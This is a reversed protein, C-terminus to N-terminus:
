GSFSLSGVEASWGFRMAGRRSYFAVWLPLLVIPFLATGAALGLLGGAANPRRYCYIAWVLFATPWVHHLQRGVDFATYPVLLYLVGM